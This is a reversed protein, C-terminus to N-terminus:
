GAADALGEADLVTIKRGQVRILDDQQLGSLTRSVVDRVSGLRAALEENTLPLTFTERGAAEELLYRALRQRVQRLSLDTVLDVLTRMRQSLAEMIKLSFQPHARLWEDFAAKPIFLITSDELAAASAPYPANDFLPLEAVSDGERLISFIQERGAESAKFIKVAGSRILFLGKAPDNEWFLTEGKAYTRLTGRALLDARSAEDMGNFISFERALGCPTRRHDTM